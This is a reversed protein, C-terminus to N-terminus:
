EVLEDAIEIVEEPKPDEITKTVLLGLEPLYMYKLKSRKLADFADDITEVLPDGALNFSTNFIVPVGTIDKFDKILNYYHKNQEETVTQVRCTDDVHTVAPIQSVKDAVVNVAMMMFPSEGAGALDFWENADEALVTGAFPRFWERGKVKNVTDKGDPDRADYLISRNGLARPGAESRGQYLTVINKDALMQAIEKSTVPRTEFEEKNEELKAKISDLSYEPGHYLTTQADILDQPPVTQFKESNQTYWALKALGIATGGDNAVPEFYFEVDPFRKRLYYNTVCNLGYGGALAIQKVGVREIAVEVLDGVMTQTDNQVQWALNKEADTLKSPDTHWQKPDNSQALYRERSTDVYAGAPYSPIFLNKNGRGGVFLPPINDDKRGYPALGMTKGAEIFGFGLYQSVAEYTKTITTASDFFHIGNTSGVRPGENSGYQRYALEFKAPYTVSWISETEFGEATYKGEQDIAEKKYTGAGDIVIVAAREFGSNYFAHAAHGVHHEHGLPTVKVKPNLKRVLATYPDEGTWPLSPLNSSTGGLVIEDVHWKSLIDIIGRFPNGDYKMRSLREEEVYYVLKGDSVLSVSGNHGPNVGLINYAM